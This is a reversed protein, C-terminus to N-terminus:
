SACAAPPHPGPATRPRPKELLVPRGAPLAQACLPAPQDNTTAIVAADCLSFLEAPAACVAAGTKAGLAEARAPVRDCVATVRDDGSLAAARKGGILGCGLIGVRM